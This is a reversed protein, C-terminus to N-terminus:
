ERAAEARREASLEDSLLRGQSRSRILARVQALATDPNVLRLAGSEELTLVLAGGREVGLARRAGVPLVLRGSKDVTVVTTTM